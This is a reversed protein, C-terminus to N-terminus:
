LERAAPLVERALLELSAMIKEHPLEAMHVFLMVRDIGLDRIKTLGALVTDPSGFLASSRLDADLDFPSRERQGGSQAATLRLRHWPALLSARDAV